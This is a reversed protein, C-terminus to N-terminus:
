QKIAKFWRPLDGDKYVPIPDSFGAQKIFGLWESPTYLNGETSVGFLWLSGLLWFSDERAEDVVSEKVILIGNPSLAQHLKKLIKVIKESGWFHLFDGIWILDFQSTGFDVANIDGPLTTIQQKIGLGEAVVLACQVVPPWDNLTLLVGPNQKALALTMIAPGCAVDLVRLGEVARIGLLRWIDDKGEIAKEPRLRSHTENGAWYAAIAGVTWDSVIPRTGTRISNALKGNGEWAMDALLLDGMYGPTNTILYAKSVPVLHYEFGEKHLLKM